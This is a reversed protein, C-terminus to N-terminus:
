NEGKFTLLNNLQTKAEHILTQVASVRCSEDENHNSLGDLWICLIADAQKVYALANEVDPTFGYSVSCPINSKM